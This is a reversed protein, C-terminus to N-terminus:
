YSSKYGTSATIATINLCDNMCIAAEVGFRGLHQFKGPFLRPPELCATMGGEKILGLGRKVAGHNKPANIATREHRITKDRFITAFRDNVFEAGNNTRFCELADGVDALFKTTAAAVEVASKNRFPYFWGM